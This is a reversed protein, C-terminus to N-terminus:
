EIKINDAIIQLIKDKNRKVAAEFFKPGSNTRNWDIDGLMEHVWLAYNAGFGMVLFPNNKTSGAVMGQAESIASSYSEQLEAYQKASLKHDGEELKFSPAPTYLGKITVIYWSARLNGLTVPILPPTRDMDRRIVIAARILGQITRGQIAQIEKNLNSLVVDFGKIRTNPNVSGPIGNIVAM